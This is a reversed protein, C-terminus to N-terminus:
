SKRKSRLASCIALVILGAFILQSIEFVESLFIV